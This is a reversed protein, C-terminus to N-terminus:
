DCDQEGSPLASSGFFESLCNLYRRSFRDPSMAGHASLGEAREEIVFSVSANLLAIRVAEARKLDTVDRPEGFLLAVSSARTAALMTAIERTHRESEAVTLGDTQPAIALLEDIGAVEQAVKIALWGGRSSGAVLICQHGQRRLEDVQARVFDITASAEQVLDVGSPWTIRALRAELRGALRRMVLPPQSQITTESSRGQLYIVVDCGGRGRTAQPVADWHLSFSAGTQAVSPSSTWLVFALHAIGLSALLKPM